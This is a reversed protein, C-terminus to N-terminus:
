KKGGACNNDGVMATECGRGGRLDIGDAIQITLTKGDILFSEAFVILM